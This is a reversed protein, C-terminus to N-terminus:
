DFDFIIIEDFGGKVNEVRITFNLDLPDPDPPFEDEVVKSHNASTNIEVSIAPGELLSM